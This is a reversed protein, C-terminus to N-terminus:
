NTKNNQVNNKKASANNKYTITGAANPMSTIKDGALGIYNSVISNAVAAEGDLCVGADTNGSIFNSDVYKTDNPNGIEVAVASYLHVGDEGNPIAKTGGSNTGIYCKKVSSDSCDGFFSVGSKINGSLISSLLTLSTCDSVYMGDMGNPLAQVSKNDTGIYSNSIKSGSCDESVYLGYGINGSIVSKDILANTCRNINLGYLGNPLGTSGNLATGVFCSDITLNTSEETIAFGYRANGSLVSSKIKPDFCSKIYVGDVGNPLANVGAKDTGICCSDITLNNSSALAYVGSNANGSITSLSIAAYKSQDICIGYGGNPLALTGTTDVGVLCETVKLNDSMWRAYLGSNVNGSLVSSKITANECDNVLEIGYMGNPLPSKGDKTTGIFSSSVKLDNSKAEAHLGSLANGSLVCSTIVAKDYEYLMVGHAGNPLATKGDKDTGICCTDLSLGNRQLYGAVLGCSANGSITCNTISVAEGSVADIGHEGNPLAKLGFADTGLYCKNITSGACNGTIALGSRFNGSFAVSEITTKTCDRLEAGYLEYGKHSAGNPLAKTGNKDTGILCHSVKSGDCKGIMTLGTYGNGSLVSSELLFNPCDKIWSGYEGNPLPNLGDIDTGFFCNKVQLGSCNGIVNMGSKLNGSMISYQVSLSTASTGPNVEIGHRSNAVSVLGTIDTGFFCTVINAKSCGAGIYIGSSKNGSLLSNQMKWSTCNYIYIGHSGNPVVVTGLPNMGVFNSAIAHGTGNSITMGHDTNGSTTNGSVNVYNCSDIRIGIRNPMATGLSDTGIFNSSLVSYDGGSTIYIGRDFDGLNLGKILCSQAAVVFGDFAKDKGRITVYLTANNVLASTSSKGMNNAFGDITIKKTITPLASSLTITVPKTMNFNITSEKSSDANAKTLAERLTGAGSDANSTVTYTAAEAQGIVLFHLLLFMAMLVKHAGHKAIM